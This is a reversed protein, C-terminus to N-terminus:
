RVFARVRMEVPDDKGSAEYKKWVLALELRATSLPIIAETLYFYWYGDAPIDLDPDNWRIAPALRVIRNIQIKAGLGVRAFQVEDQYHTGFELRLNLEREKPGFWLYNGLSFSETQDEDIRARVFPTTRFSPRKIEARFVGSHELDAGPEERHTMWDWRLNVTPSAAIRTSFDFGREGITRSSYTRDIIDMPISRTDGHGPGGGWPNTFGTGYSWARTHFRGKTLPWLVEIAKATAGGTQVAFEALLERRGSRLHLDTGAATSYNSWCDERKGADDLDHRFGGSSITGGIEHRGLRSEVRVAGFSEVLSDGHVNSYVGQVSVARRSSTALWVGNFRGRTPQWFSGTVDGAGIVRSRRGVVLGRGWRPEISGLQATAYQGDYALTRRRWEGGDENDRSWDLNARWRGRQFRVVTYGQGSTPESLDADVGGRVSWKIPARSTRVPSLLAGSSPIESTDPSALYGADSGPLAEWDSQPVILSDDGSRSLDLLELFEDFSIEGENLAEWLDEESEYPRISPQQAEAKCFLVLLVFLVSLGFVRAGASDIHRDSDM